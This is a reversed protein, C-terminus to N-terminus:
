PAARGAHAADCWNRWAARYAAEIALALGQGDCLPSALLRQRMGARLAQLRELDGALGAAIEVYAAPTDAVLEPLGVATLLSAGIRAAHRDGLLAVVPVGMWLAECTTTTGNYPFPDLAIDVRDYARYHASREPTWGEMQLRDASVGRKAFTAAVVARLSPTQMTRAKLLLRSGPVAALVQAWLELTAPSAKSFNNFSGFTVHGATRMPPPSVALEEPSRYCLFCRPLRIPKETYHREAGDPDAVADTIWYDIAPLGRTNPYGIYALQVPAPKRAFVPLRHSATHGTLDVLLDIGDGRVIEAVEADGRGAIPVWRDTLARVRESWADPQAVDAYCVVEVQARDHGELLPIMSFSVSHDRFDPSMYGVRLRREPDVPNAFPEIPALGAYHRGWARHEALLMEPSQDDAYNLALLLDSQPVAADAKRLCDIGEQHHGLEILTAGLGRYADVYGPRL